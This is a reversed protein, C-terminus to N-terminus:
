SDGNCDQRWPSARLRTHPAVVTSGGVQKEQQEAAKRAADLRQKTANLETRTEKLATLTEDNGAGQGDPSSARKDGARPTNHEEESAKRAESIAALQTTLAAPADENYAESLQCTAAGPLTSNLRSRAATAAECEMLKCIRKADVTEFVFSLVIPLGAPAGESNGAEGCSAVVEMGKDTVRWSRLNRYRDCRLALRPNLTCPLTARLLSSRMV